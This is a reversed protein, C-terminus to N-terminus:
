SLDKTMLLALELVCSDTRTYMRNRNLELGM